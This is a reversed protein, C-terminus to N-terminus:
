VLGNFNVQGIFEDEFGPEMALDIAEFGENINLADKIRDYMLSGLLSANGCSNIRGTLEKAILGTVAADEKDLYYGFGGAITVSVIDKYELGAKKLLINVGCYVAAKALQLDRITKQSLVGKDRKLLGTEDVSGDRLLGALKSISDSGLGETSSFASGAATATCYIKEGDSLAIEANTGLDIYLKGRGEKTIPLMGESILGATIDAGVFASIGPLLIFTIEKHILKKEEIFVPSFPYGGLGTADEGALLHLMVTNGAVYIPLSGPNQNCVKKVGDYLFDLIEKSIYDKGFKAAADIRSIVDAGYKIQPNLDKYTKTIKKETSDWYSFAITSTGLDIGAVDREPMALPDAEKMSTLIESKEGFLIEAEAKAKPNSRCALRVNGRIEDLSLLKREVADPLPANNLFRVKCRGCKAGYNGGCISYSYGNKKLYDCVCAFFPLGGDYVFPIGKRLENGTNDKSLNTQTQTMTITLPM